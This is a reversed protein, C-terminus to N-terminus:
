RINETQREYPNVLWLGVSFCELHAEKHNKSDCWEIHLTIISHQRRKSTSQNASLSINAGRSQSDQCCCGTLHHEALCNIEILDYTYSQHKITKYTGKTGNVGPALMRM